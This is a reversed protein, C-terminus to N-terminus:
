QSPFYINQLKKIKTIWQIAGANIDSSSNKDTLDYTRFFERLEDAGGLPSINVAPHMKGTTMEDSNRM